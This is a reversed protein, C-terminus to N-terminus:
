AGPAAASMTPQEERAAFRDRIALSWRHDHAYILREVPLSVLALLNTAYEVHRVSTKHETVRALQFSHRIVSGLTGNLFGGGWEIRTPEDVYLECPLKLDFPVYAHEIAMTFLTGVALPKRKSRLIAKLKPTWSPWADIDRLLASVEDLPANVEVTEDIWTRRFGKADQTMGLPRQCILPCTELLSFLFIPGIPELHSPARVM